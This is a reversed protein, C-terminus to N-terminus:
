PAARAPSAGSSQSCWDRWRARAAGRPPIRAGVMENFDDIPMSGAVRLTHEDVWTLRADPLDFEDQIDGVLEEPVDELTVMGAVIGYEDVVVALQERQARLERLVAGLDKTEPVIMAPRAIEGVTAPQASRAAALIDRVHTIGVLRDLSGNGVPYREHPAELVRDLAADPTLAADLWDVDVAPVMIDRVERDVFELANHLLEEQATPIVGSREAEDVAAGLEARSRISEGAVVDRVGFPRLVAGASAQLVWVAPWLVTSVIDIAPAVLAALREARDLTLAKPVLEGFVVSLYTVIAVAAVFAIARPLWGAFLDRVFSEGVAGTLISVATVGLQVTSIVRVPDDMLRLAARAGPRGSEALSALAARRATIVAYEAVVFVANAGVLALVAAIRLGVSM